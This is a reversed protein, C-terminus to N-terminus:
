RIAWKEMVGGHCARAIRNAEARQFRRYGRRSPHPNWGDELWELGEAEPAQVKDGVLEAYEVEALLSMVRCGDSSCGGDVGPRAVEVARCGRKM